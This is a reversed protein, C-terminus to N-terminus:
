FIQNRTTVQSAISKVARLIGDGALQDEKFAQANATDYGLHQAIALANGADYIAGPVQKVYPYASISMVLVHDRAQAGTGAASFVCGFAAARAYKLLNRFGTTLM